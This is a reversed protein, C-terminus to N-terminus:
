CTDGFNKVQGDACCQQANANYLVSFSSTTGCCQMPNPNPNRNGSTGSTGTKDSARCASDRDFAKNFFHYDFNHVPM